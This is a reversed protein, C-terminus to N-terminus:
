SPNLHRQGLAWFRFGLAWLGDLVIGEQELFRVVLFVCDDLVDAAHEEIPLAGAPCVRQCVLPRHVALAMLERQRNRQRVDFGHSRTKAIDREVIAQLQHAAAFRLERHRWPDRQNKGRRRRLESFSFERRLARARSWNHRPAAVRAANWHRTTMYTGDAQPVDSSCKLAPCLAIQSTCGRM